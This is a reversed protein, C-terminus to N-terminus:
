KVDHHRLTEVLIRTAEGTLKRCQRKGINRIVGFDELLADCQNIGGTHEQLRRQFAESVSKVRKKRDGSVTPEDCMHAIALAGGTFIGCTAQRGGMGGCLGTAMQYPPDTDNPRMVRGAALLIAESCCYGSKALSLALEEAAQALSSVEEDPNCCPCGSM